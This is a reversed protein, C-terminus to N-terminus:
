AAYTSAEQEWTSKAEKSPSPTSPKAPYINGGFCLIYQDDQESTKEMQMMVHRRGRPPLASFPKHEDARLQQYIWGEPKKGFPDTPTAPRWSVLRCPQSISRDRRKRVSRFQLLHKFIDLGEQPSEGTCYVAALCPELGVADPDAPGGQPPAGNLLKIGKQEPSQSLACFGCAAKQDDRIQPAPGVLQWSPSMFQGALSYSPHPLQM